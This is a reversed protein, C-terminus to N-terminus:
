SRHIKEWLKRFFSKKQPKTRILFRMARYNRDVQHDLARLVIDIEEKTKCNEFPNSM